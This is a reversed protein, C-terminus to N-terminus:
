PAHYRQCSREYAWVFVDRLLDVENLEYVGLTGEVYAREPVDIFSLPCLNQKILSINAGVRSVRKNVDEFPQLYPLQAMLFFDQSLVAHLNKFTFADFGVEDADEILMEIAAKHNLIM